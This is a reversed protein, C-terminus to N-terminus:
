SQVRELMSAADNGTRRGPNRTFFPVAAFRQKTSNEGRLLDASLRGRSAIHIPPGNLSQLWKLHEYVAQPEDGTDAFVAADLHVAGEMAFLYVTTSQVGAGLSLIHHETM